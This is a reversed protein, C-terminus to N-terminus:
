IKTVQPGFQPLWWADDDNPMEGPDLEGIHNSILMSNIVDNYNNHMETDRKFKRELYNLREVPMKLNNKLKLKANPKWLLGVTWRGNELHASKTMLEIALEDDDDRSMSLEMDDREYYYSDTGGFVNTLAEHLAQNHPNIFNVKYVEQM